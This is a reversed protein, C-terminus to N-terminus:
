SQFPGQNGSPQPGSAILNHANREGARVYVMGGLYERKIPSSLEEALYEKVPVLQLKRATSMEPPKGWKAQHRLGAVVM